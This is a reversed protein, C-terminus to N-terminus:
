KPKKAIVKKIQYLIWWDEVFPSSLVDLNHFLIDRLEERMSEHDKMLKEYPTSDDSSDIKTKFVESLCKERLVTRVDQRKLHGMDEHEDCIEHSLRIINRDLSESFDRDNKHNHIYDKLLNIAIAVDM